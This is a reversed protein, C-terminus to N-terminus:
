GLTIREEIANLKLVGFFTTNQRTYYNVIFSM